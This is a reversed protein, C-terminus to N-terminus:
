EAGQVMSDLSSLREVDACLKALGEELLERGVTGLGEEFLQKTVKLTESAEFTAAAAAEATLPVAEDAPASAASLGDNYGARTPTERLADLVKPGAVLFDVGALALADDRSRVGSVMVKTAPHYKKNFM